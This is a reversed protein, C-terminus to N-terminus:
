LIFIPFEEMWTKLLGQRLFGQFKLVQLPIKNFFFCKGWHSLSVHSPWICVLAQHGFNAVPKFTRKLVMEQRKEVVVHIDEVFSFNLCDNQPASCTQFRIPEFTIAYICSFAFLFFNFFFSFFSFFFQFRFYNRKTDYSM